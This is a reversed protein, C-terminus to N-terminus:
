KVECDALSFVIGRCYVEGDEMVDFTAHPIDTQYTWSPGNREVCWQSTIMRAAKQAEKFGCFKCECDDHEPLIAGLETVYIEGPAGVEEYIAGRLEALDDSAGFLIVLGAKKAAACEASTPEFPYERADDLTVALQEKTM